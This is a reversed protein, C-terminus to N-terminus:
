LLGMREWTSPGVGGDADSGSWGQARQFASCANRDASGWSRSIYSSYYSQYGMCVLAAACYLANNGQPTQQGPYKGKSVTKSWARSWTEPGPIVDADSGSWGQARQFAATANQDASGWDRSAYQTFYSDYGILCLRAAWQFIYDNHKGSGFKDAGPFAPVKGPYPYNANTWISGTAPPTGGGSPPPTSGGGGSIIAGCDARWQDMNVHKGNTGPDWKGTTSTEYHGVLYSTNKKFHKIVAANARDTAAKQAASPPQTGNYDLEFGITQWNGDGTSFPGFGNSEGAHNARGAAIMHCVGNYDIGVHCLPGPLDSRGNILTNKSPFPNSTSSTAATHHDTVGYPNFQGTSSPRGRHRWDGCDEAVTCGEARLADALWTAWVYTM